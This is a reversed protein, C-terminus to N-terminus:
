DTRFARVFGLMLSIALFFLLGLFWITRALGITRVLAGFALGWVAFTMEQDTM